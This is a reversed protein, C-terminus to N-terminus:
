LSNWFRGNSPWAIILRCYIMPYSSIIFRYGM